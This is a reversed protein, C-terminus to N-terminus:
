LGFGTGGEVGAVLLSLGEAVQDVARLVEPSVPGPDFHGAEIGYVRLRKPLRDLTEGLRIAHALGVGHTSSGIFDDAQAPRGPWEWAHIAGPESGTVVADIVIADDEGHWRELLAMGDGTFEEAALGLERLRRAVLLGAADDGREPNGYGLILM